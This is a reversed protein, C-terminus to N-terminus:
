RAVGGERHLVTSREQLYAELADVPIVLRRGFRVAPLRGRWIERRVTYAHVGLTSAAEAVSMHTKNARTVMQERSHVLAHVLFVRTREGGDIARTKNGEYPKVEFSRVLHGLSWIIARTAPTAATAFTASVALAQARPPQRPDRSHSRGDTPLTAM